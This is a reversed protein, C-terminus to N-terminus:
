KEVPQASKLGAPFPAEKPLVKKVADSVKLFSGCHGPVAGKVLILNNAEDVAVVKLNQTTINANGLHGAMKKGKFVKGPDQRNGTSGHSRHTLSVGHTARLSRFNHRKIVGAFGKGISVGAVDVFQNAVFHAASLQSGVDVFNSEDVRFEAMKRVPAVGAKKFVGQMPKSVNKVKAKGLGLQLANYGDKEQTKHAIVVCDDVELITVPVFAGSEDYIRSMGIKKTILGTRM